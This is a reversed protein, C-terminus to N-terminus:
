GTRGRLISKPISSLLIRKQPTQRIDISFGKRLGAGPSGASTGTGGGHSGGGRTHVAITTGITPITTASAAVIATLRTAAIVSKPAFAFRALTALHNCSDTVVGTPKTRETTGICNTSRATAQTAATAEFSRNAFRKASFRPRIGIQDHGNRASAVGSKPRREDIMSEASKVSGLSFM